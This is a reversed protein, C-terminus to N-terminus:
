QREGGAGGRGRGGGGGAGRGGGRGAETHNTNDLHQLVFLSSALYGVTVLLPEKVLCVRCNSSSIQSAGEHVAKLIEESLSSRPPLVNKKTTRTTTIDSKSTECRLM